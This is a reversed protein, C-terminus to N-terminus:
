NIVPPQENRTWDQILREAIVEALGVEEASLEHTLQNVMAKSPADEVLAGTLFFALAIPANKEVGEGRQYMLGLNHRSIPSGSAAARLYWNMAGKFDVDGGSGNALLAALNHQALALGCEAAFEYYARAKEFDPETGHGREYAIGANYAASANGEVAAEMNLTLSKDLDIAVGIGEKYMWALHQKAGTDGLEVAKTFYRVSESLNIELAGAGTQYAEGLMKAASVEGQDLAKNLWYIGLDIDQHSAQTLFIWGLMTESSALGQEAAKMYWRIAEGLDKGVVRGEAFFSGMWHQAHKSGEDAMERLKEYASEAEGKEFFLDMAETFRSEFPDQTPIDTM